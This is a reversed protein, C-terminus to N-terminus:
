KIFTDATSHGYFYTSRYQKPTMGTFKKFSKTFHSQDYFNLRAGISSTTDNTMSLLKKAEEIRQKQIYNMLTMGTKEKFLHMLYSGNLGTLEALQEVNIEQYLHNFIHEQCMRVPKSISARRSQEVRETFDFLARAQIAVVKNVDKMEEIRQIYLDSLKFALEEYLGGEVASRTVLAVLCIALNKMNRLQSRKSLVGVGENPFATWEKALQATNGTRIIELFQKEIKLSSHYLPLERQASIEMEIEGIPRDSLVYEYSYQQVDTIQLAEQNIIWNALVAIHFLRIRDMVPLSGWYEKWQPLERYSIQRDNMFGEILEDSPVRQITPGVVVFGQREGSSKVPVVIFEGWSNSALIVPYDVKREMFPRIQAEIERFFLKHKEEMGWMMDLSDGNESYFVAIRITEYLLKCSYSLDPHGQVNFM